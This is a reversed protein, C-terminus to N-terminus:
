ADVGEAIDERHELRFEEVLRLLEVVRADRLSYRRAAGAEERLLAGSRMLVALHQSVNSQAAGVEKAIEGVSMPGNRALLRVIRLRRRHGLAALLAAAFRNATDSALLTSASDVVNFREGGLTETQLPDENVRM